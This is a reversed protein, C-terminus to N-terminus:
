FSTSSCPPGEHRARSLAFELHSKVAPWEQSLISFVVTDRLSGDAHRMHSRLIGDQKAGLREIARRSAHNFFSTRFEVAVAGMADFAHGLLLLKCATNVHTRQWSKAYWTYGIEVRDAARVIDHFRTTGIITDTMLERVAWPLM